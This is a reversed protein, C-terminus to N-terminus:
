NRQILCQGGAARLSSCLDGAESSSAFPGVMARYYTGKAGLDVKHIVPQRGGLQNPYKAQLDRFATQAEAESRQSSVQVFSGSGPSTTAPAAPAAAPAVAATRTPAAASRAPGAEPSLSLPSNGSAQAAPRPQPPPRASAPVPANQEADATDAARAQPLAPPPAPKAVAPAVPPPIRAPAAALPPASPQPDAVVPQDPHIAITRIKKPENSVVGSGLASQPASPALVTTASRDIPQEERSVLKESQGRDNLRDTILKGSQTDKGTAVPVIKSPGTDAKIVPPSQSSGTSGFLARYGFAGATGIVALALVSAAAILGFRWRSRPADDYYEEGAQHPQDYDYGEQQYDAQSPPYGQVEHQPDFPDDSVPLAADDLPQRGHHHEGSYSQEGPASRAAYQGNGAYNQSTTSSRYDTGTRPAYPSNIPPTSRWDPREAAPAPSRRGFEGFPDTQGILRALEALPDNGPAKASGRVPPESARYPRQSHEDAM